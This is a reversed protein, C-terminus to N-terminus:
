GESASQVENVLHRLAALCLRSGQEQTGAFPIYHTELSIYGEYGDRALASLQAKYDIQGEGIVVFRKLGNNLQEADKAHVHVIYDKVFEYGTPFANEGAFFANGPDWVAKLASNNVKSLVRATEEGNGIYCSHEMELVLVKGAKQAVEAIEALAEVISEEIAATLEGRKWFSFVRIFDTGFFDALEICRKLLDIQQGRSREKADHMRGLEGSESEILECKLVPSAICVVPFGKEALLKKLDSVEADTFDSINKGWIGRLEAGECGYERMVDLAHAIDMSIEDTIVSLKM